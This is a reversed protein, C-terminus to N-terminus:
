EGAVYNMIDPDYTLDNGSGDYVFGADIKTGFWSAPDAIMLQPNEDCFTKWDKDMVDIIAKYHDFRQNLSIVDYKFKHASETLLYFFLARKARTKTWLEMLATQKPDSNTFPFSWGTERLADNVANTYDIDALYKSLGKVESQLLTIMEEQTM